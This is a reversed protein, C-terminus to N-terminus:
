EWTGWLAGACLVLVPWALLSFAPAFVALLRLAEPTASRRAGAAILGAEAAAAVAFSWVGLATNLLLVGALAGSGIAYLAALAILGQRRPPGPEGHREAAPPETM